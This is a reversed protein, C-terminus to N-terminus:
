RDGGEADSPAESRQIWLYIPVGALILGFGFTTPGPEQILANLIMAVSAVLFLAPAVPYGWTRYPRDADPKLRRLRFVAWIMLVHFPWLGLIFAQALQEFSRVSVYGIGLLATFLTAVHPTLFEGHVSGIPRFLLRDDAMALFIRPNFMLAAQLAGLTSVSVLVAVIHSGSRGFVRTAADAAVMSSAAMEHVPLVYLYAANTALYVAMVALMGGILARPITYGPNRVEGALAAVGSWGSYTWMVTVLALGFGTWSAPAFALPGAMAGTARDGFVFAAVAVVGLALLKTSSVVNEFWASWLLSRYNLATLALILGAAVWREPVGDLPVLTKFYSAFILAIAGLSAPVLLLLRTWGYLFAPLRGYAERLYVYPGGARPYMCALEATAVSGFLALLGGVVWILAIAGLSVVTGAVSSPVRFIGSGIVIGIM